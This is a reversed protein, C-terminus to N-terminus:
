EKKIWKLFYIFEIIFTTIYSCVAAIAAGVINYKPILAFCLALTVILGFLSAFASISFNGRSAFYQTFNSSSSIFMIGIALIRIIYGVDDFGKGFLFVYFSKPLVCLVLLALFTFLCNVKTLNITLQKAQKNDQSNSLSSYQVLALSGGFLM